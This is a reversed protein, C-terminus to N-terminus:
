RASEKSWRSISPASASLNMAAILVVSSVPSNSRPYDGASEEVRGGRRHPSREGRGRRAGRPPPPRRIKSRATRRHARTGTRRGPGRRSPGSDVASRHTGRGAGRAIGGEDGCDVSPRGSRIAAALTAPAHRRHARLRGEQRGRPGGRGDAHRRRLSRRSRPGGDSGRERRRRCGTRAARGATAGRPRSRGARLRRGGTRSGRAQAGAGEERQRCQRAGRRENEHGKEERGEEIVAVRAAGAEVDGEGGEEAEAERERGPDHAIREDEPLENEDVVAGSVDEVPAVGIRGEPEGGCSRALLKGRGGVRELLAPELEDRRQRGLNASRGPAERASQERRGEGFPEGVRGPGHPEEGPLGAVPQSGPRVRPVPPASRDDREARVERKQVEGRRDAERARLPPARPGEGEDKEGEREREM